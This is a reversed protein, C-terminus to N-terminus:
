GTGLPRFPRRFLFGLVAGPDKRLKSKLLEAHLPAILDLSCWYRLFSDSSWRGMLRVVDPPVGALLLHTTGGIRFCHGSIPQFGEATLVENVRRLSKRRTLSLMSGSSSRYSALPLNHGGNVLQHLELCAIPDLHDQRTIFIEEGRAGGTKTRPLHLLRSGSENAIGFDSWRPLLSSDYDSERSPLLEGLRVQGWFATLAVFIPPHDQISGSYM